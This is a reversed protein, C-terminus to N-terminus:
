NDAFYLSSMYSSFLCYLYRFWCMQSKHFCHMYYLGFFTYFPISITKYQFDFIYKEFISSTRLYRFRIYRKTLENEVLKAARYCSIHNKHGSVGFQDFTIIFDANTTIAYEILKFAILKASWDSNDDFNLIAYNLGLSHCLAKLENARVTGDQKYGGNSLCLIFPKAHYLLPSFFMLEDDPHATLLLIRGSPIESTIRLRYSGKLIAFVVTALVAWKLSFLKNM